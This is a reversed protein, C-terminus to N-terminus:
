IWLSYFRLSMQRRGISYDSYCHIFAWWGAYASGQFNVLQSLSVKWTNTTDFVNCRLCLRRLATQPENSSCLMSQCLFYGFFTISVTVISECSFCKIWSVPHLGFILKALVMGISVFLLFAECTLLLLLFCRCAERGCRRTLRQRHTRPQSSSDPM